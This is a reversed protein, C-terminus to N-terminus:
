RRSTLSRSGYWTSGRSEIAHGDGEEAGGAAGAEAAVAARVRVDLAQAPLLHVVRAVADLDVGGLRYPAEEVAPVGGAVEFHAQAPRGDDVRARREAAQGDGDICPMRGAAGDAGRAEGLGVRVEHDRAVEHGHQLLGACADHVDAGIRRGHREDLTRMM